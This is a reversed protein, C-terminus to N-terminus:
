DALGYVFLSGFDLSNRERYTWLDPKYVTFEFTEGAKITFPEKLEEYTPILQEFIIDKDTKNTWRIKTNVVTTKQKPQFGSTTYSIELIKEKKTEADNQADLSQTTENTDLSNAEIGSDQGADNKNIESGPNNSRYMKIEEEIKTEFEQITSFDMKEGNLFFTPTSDVKLSLALKADNKVRQKLFDSNVDKDFKYM